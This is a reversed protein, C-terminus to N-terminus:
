TPITASMFAARGDRLLEAVRLHRPPLSNTHESIMQEAVFGCKGPQGTPNSCPKGLNPDLTDFVQLRDNGRDCVYAKGDNAIKM